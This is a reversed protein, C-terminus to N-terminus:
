GESSVVTGRPSLPGRGSRAIRLAGAPRPTKWVSANPVDDAPSTFRGDPVPSWNYGIGPLRVLASVSSACFNAWMSACHSPTGQQSHAKLLARASIKFGPEIDNFIYTCINCSMISSGLFARRFSSDFTFIWSIICFAHILYQECRCCM